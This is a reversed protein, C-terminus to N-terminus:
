TAQPQTALMSPRLAFTSFWTGLVENNRRWELYPLRFDLYALAVGASVEVVSPQDSALANAELNLTEVARRIVEAQRDLFGTYVISEPRRREMVSAVAADIIGEAIQKRRLATWRKTGRPLAALGRGRTQLYEVILSSDLLAEGKDTILTPIKSLPNAALFEESPVFPDILSEEILDNLGLEAAVVRVKRAYPSTLSCYLKMKM